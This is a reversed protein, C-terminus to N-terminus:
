DNFKDQGFPAMEELIMNVVEVLNNHERIITALNKHNPLLALEKDLDFYEYTLQKPKKM